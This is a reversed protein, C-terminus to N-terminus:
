TDPLGVQKTLERYRPDSRIVDVLSDCNLLAM